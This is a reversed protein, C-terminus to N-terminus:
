TRRSSPVVTVTTTAAVDWGILGEGEHIWTLPAADAPLLDLLASPEVLRTTVVM